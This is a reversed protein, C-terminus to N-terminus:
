HNITNPNSHNTKLPQNDSLLKFGNKSIRSREMGPLHTAQQCLSIKHQKLPVIAKGFWEKQVDINFSLLLTL